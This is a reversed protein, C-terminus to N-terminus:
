KIESIEFIIKYEESYIVRRKLLQDIHRYYASFTQEVSTFSLSRPAYLGDGKVVREWCVESSSGITGQMVFEEEGDLELRMVLKRAPM